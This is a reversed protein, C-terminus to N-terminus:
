ATANPGGVQDNHSGCRKPGNRQTSRTAAGTEQTSQPIRFVPVLGGRAASCPQGPVPRPGCRAPDAVHARPHQDHVVVRREPRERAPQQDRLSEVDHALGGVAGAGEARGARRPRRQAAQRAAARHRRTGPQRPARRARAGARPRARRASPIRSCAADALEGALQLDPLAPLAIGGRDHESLALRERRASRRLYM